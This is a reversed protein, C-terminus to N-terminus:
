NMSFPRYKRAWHEDILGDFEKLLAWADNVQDPGLKSWSEFFRQIRIPTKSYNPGLMTRSLVLSALHIDLWSGVTKKLEVGNYDFEHSSPIAKLVSDLPVAYCFDILTVGHDPHILVHDLNIAGHVIGVRNGLFGLAQLVRRYMWTWDRADLEGKADAVERLTFMGSPYTLVNVARQLKDDKVQFNDVLKPFFPLMVSREKKEEICSAIKRLNTAENVLLDNDAPNRAIKLVLGNDTLYLNAIDGEYWLKSIKYSGRKSTLTTETPTKIKTGYVGANIRAEAISWWINIQRSLEAANEANSANLDPHVVRQMRLYAKKANEPSVYGFVDEPQIASLLQYSIVQFDNTTAPM